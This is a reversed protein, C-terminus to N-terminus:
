LSLSPSSNVYPFYAESTKSHAFMCFQLDTDVGNDVLSFHRTDVGRHVFYLLM